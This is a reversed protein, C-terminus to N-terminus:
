HVLLFLDHHTSSNLLPSLPPFLAFSLRFISILLATGSRRFHTWRSVPTVWGLFIMKILAKFHFVLSLELSPHPTHTHTYQLHSPPPYSKQSSFLILRQLLLVSLLPEMSPVRHLLFSHSRVSVEEHYMFLLFLSWHYDLSHLLLTIRQSSFRQSKSTLGTGWGWKGLPQFSYRWSIAHPFWVGSQPLVSAASSPSCSSMVGTVQSFLLDHFTPASGLSM